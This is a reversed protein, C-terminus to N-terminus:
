LHYYLRKYCEEAEEKSIIKKDLYYKKTKEYMKNQYKTHINKCTDMNLGGDRNFYTNDVCDFDDVSRLTWSSSRICKGYGLFVETLAQWADHAPAYIPSFTFYIIFDNKTIAYFNSSFQGQTSYLKYVNRGKKLIYQPELDSKDFKTNRVTIETIKKRMIQPINFSGNHLYAKERYFSNRIARIQYKNM